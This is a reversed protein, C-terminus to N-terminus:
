IVNKTEKKLFTYEEREQSPMLIQNPFGELAEKNKTLFIQKGYYKYSGCSVYLKKANIFSEEDVETLNWRSIPSMGMIWAMRSGINRECFDEVFLQHNFNGEIAVLLLKCYGRGETLDPGYSIKFYKIKEKRELINKIYNTAELESLFETGDSTIFIKTRKEKTTINSHHQTKM